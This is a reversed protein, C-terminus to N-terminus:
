PESKDRYRPMSKIINIEERARQLDPNLEIAKRFMNLADSPNSGPGFLKGDKGSLLAIGLNYCAEGSRPSLEVIKRFFEIAGDRDGLRVHIEALKAIIVTEYPSKALVSELLGEIEKYKGESALIVELMNLADLNRPSLEITRRLLKEAKETEGEKYAIRALQLLINTDSPALAEARAFLAKAKSINNADFKMGALVTIADVYQPNEELVKMTVRQANERQGSFYLAKAYFVRFYANRKDKEILRKIIDAAESYKLETVLQVAKMFEIHMVVNDSPVPRNNYSIERTASPESQVNIYGLAELKRATDSPAGKARAERQFSEMSIKNEMAWLLREMKAATEPQSVILNEEEDFDKRIDYLEPKPSKIYVYGSAAIAKLDSWGYHLLPLETEMYAARDQTDDGKEILSVLSKGQMWAPIELGLLDLITPAIDVTRVQTKIKKGGRIKGEYNIILPVHMTSNYVFLGHTEEKHQGLDEGHDSVFVVLLPTSGAAKRADELLRGLQRDVFAIEGDYPSSKYEEKFPAPPDYLVHPDFYHVWLFFPKASKETDHLWAIAHDTVEDARREPSLIVALKKEISMGSDDYLDFGQDLGFVRDLVLSGVIAGTRYGKNHLIGALTMVKNPLIFNSNDRVGHAPPYLGTMITAHSPLTIPVATLAREFMVGDAAMRDIVPTRIYQYGYAGLRDARLTDVTILMVNAPGRKIKQGCGACAIFIVSTLVFALFFRRTTRASRLAIQPFFPLFGKIM